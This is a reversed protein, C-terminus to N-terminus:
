RPWNIFYDDVKQRMEKQRMEKQCMEKQRM